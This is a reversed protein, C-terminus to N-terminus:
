PLQYNIILLEIFSCIYLQEHNHVIYKNRKDGQVCHLTKFSEESRESHCTKTCNESKSM